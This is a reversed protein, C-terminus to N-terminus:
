VLYRAHLARATSTPLAGADLMWELTAAAFTTRDDLAGEYRRCWSAVDTNAEPHVVVYRGWRVSATPHQLMSHLLLHELWTETLPTGVVADLAGSGFASSREHVERYRPLNAPKPEERKLPQQYRVDLAILGTTGDGLDLVVAVDFAVLSNVYSPDLRGPSHALRIAAVRGPADPFWRHVARDALTLDAALDGFLNVALGLPWLLDAVLRQRDLTQHPEVLALRESAVARAAPTLFAAHTEEAYSLELRSGVPRAPAGPRPRMPQSGIPLGHAERWRAHHLRVARRWATLEPDGPVRDDAEWCHAAELEERSPGGTV